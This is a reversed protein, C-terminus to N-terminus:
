FTVIVSRISCKVNSIATAFPARDPQQKTHACMNMYFFILSLSLFFFFSFTSRVFRVSFFHIACTDSKPSDVSIQYPSM